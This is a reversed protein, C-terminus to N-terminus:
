LAKLWSKVTQPKQGRIFKAASNWLNGRKSQIIRNYLVTESPDIKAASLENRAPLLARNIFAALTELQEFATDLVTVANAEGGCNRLVHTRLTSKNISNAQWKPMDSM